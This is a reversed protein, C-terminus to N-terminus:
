FPEGGPGPSKELRSVRGAGYLHALLAEPVRLDTTGSPREETLLANMLAEPVCLEVSAPEEPQSWLVAHATPPHPPTYYNATTTQPIPWTLIFAAGLAALPIALTKSSISYM